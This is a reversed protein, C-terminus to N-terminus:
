VAFKFCMFLFMGPHSFLFSTIDYINSHIGVLCNSYTNQGALVYNLYSQGFLFYFDKNYSRQTCNSRMLAQKGIAWRYVIWAYDRHWLTKWIAVSTANRPEDTITYYAKSVCSLTVVDRPHLYSAIHVHADSPIGRMFPDCDVNKCNCFRSSSFRSSSSLSSTSLSYLDDDDDKTSARKKWFTFLSIAGSILESPSAYNGVRDLLDEPTLPMLTQHSGEDNDTDRTDNNSNSTSTSTSSSSSTNEDSEGNNDEEIRDFFELGLWLLSAFSIVPKGSCYLGAGELLKETMLEDDENCIETKNNKILNICDRIPVSEDVPPTTRNGTTNSARKDCSHQTGEGEVDDHYGHNCSIERRYATVASLITCLAIHIGYASLYEFLM